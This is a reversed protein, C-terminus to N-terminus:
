SSHQLCKVPVAELSACQLFHHILLLENEHWPHRAARRFISGPINPAHVTSIHIASGHLFSMASLIILHCAKMSYYTLKLGNPKESSTLVEGFVLLARSPPWGTVNWSANSVFRLTTYTQYFSVTPGVCIAEHEWSLTINVKGQRIHLFLFIIM